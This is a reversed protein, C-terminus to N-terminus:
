ASIESLFPGPSTTRRMEGWVGRLPCNSQHKLLKKMRALSYLPDDIVFNVSRKIKILAVCVTCNLWNLIYAHMKHRYYLFCVRVSVVLSSSILFLSSAVLWFHYVQFSLLSM